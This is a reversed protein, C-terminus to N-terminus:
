LSAFLQSWPEVHGGVYMAYVLYMNGCLTLVHTPLLVECFIHKEYNIVTCSRFTEDFESAASVNKLPYEYLSKLKM